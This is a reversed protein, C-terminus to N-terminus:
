NLPRTELCTVTEQSFAQTLQLRFSPTFLTPDTVSGSITPGRAALRLAIGLRPVMAEVWSPAAATLTAGSYTVPLEGGPHRLVMSRQDEPYEITGARGAFIETLVLKAPDGGYDLLKRRITVTPDGGVLWETQITVTHEGLPYKVPETRVIWEGDAVTSISVRTRREALDISHVGDSLVAHQSNKQHGAGHEASALFPANGNWLLPTEPGIDLNLRGGYPRFDVLAGGRAMDFACRHHANVVWVVERKSLKIEDKWHCITASGPPALKRFAAGFDTMSLNQNAGAEERAKLHSLMDTYLKRVDAESEICWFSALLWPSSVFVNLYSWGNLVAQREWAELFRFFYPSKAGQNIRARFINGPHSAFWDDRSSLAMIMDRNLHPVAVIDIAEEADFAPALANKRSPFYPNWPGGDSFLTWGRDNGYFMKVGEEFCSTIATKVSPHRKGIERLTWADIVYNGLSSPPAGFRDTFVAVMEDIIAIRKEQPWLWLMPEQVGYRDMTRESIIENLHLGLEDRSGILREAQKIAKPEFLAGYTFLTTTPIGLRLAEAWQFELASRSEESADSRHVINTFLMFIEGAFLIHIAGRQPRLFM